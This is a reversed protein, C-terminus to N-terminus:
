RRRRRATKGRALTREGPVRPPSADQSAPAEVAESKVVERTQDVEEHEDQDSNPSAEPDGLVSEGADAHGFRRRSAAIKNRVVRRGPPRGVVMLAIGIVAVVIPIWFWWPNTWVLRVDLEPLPQGDQRAIIVSEAGQEAIVTQEVAGIGAAREQWVDASSVQPVVSGSAREIRVQRPSELGTLSWRASEKVLSIADDPRARGLFMPVKDDASKEVSAAVTIQPGLVSALAPDIVVASQGAPVRTHITWSGNPALMIVGSVGLIVMVLGTLATLSWLVRRMTALSRIQPRPSGGTSLSRFM